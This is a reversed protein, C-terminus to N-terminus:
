STAIQGACWLRWAQLYLAELNRALAPGDYLPSTRMQERLGARMAALEDPNSALRNAIAVYEAPTRAVCQQLGV